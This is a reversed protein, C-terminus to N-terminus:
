SMDSAQSLGAGPLYGIGRGNREIQQKPEAMRLLPCGKDFGVPDFSSNKTSLISGLKNSVKENGEKM